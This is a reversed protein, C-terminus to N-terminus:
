KDMEVLSTFIQYGNDEDIEIIKYCKNYFISPTTIHYVGSYSVEDNINFHGTVVSIVNDHKNILKLYEMANPTYLMDNKTRHALPFHQLIVVKNDKYLNLQNDVWELTEPMFFGSPTNVLEKAGDVVIFVVNDKKFVYNTSKPSKRGLEKHLIKSYLERDLKKSKNLDRDGTVIYYPKNLKKIDKLFARLIDEQGIRLNDGTFVVFDIDKMKNIDDIANDLNTQAQNGGRGFMTDAIQVFKISKASAVNSLLMFVFVFSLCIKLISKKM